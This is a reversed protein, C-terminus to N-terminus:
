TCIAVEIQYSITQEPIYYIPDPPVRTSILGPQMLTVTRQVMPPTGYGLYNSYM